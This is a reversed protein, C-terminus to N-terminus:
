EDSDSALNSRVIHRYKEPSDWWTPTTIIAKELWFKDYEKKETLRKYFRGWKYMARNLRISRSGSFVFKLYDKALRTWEEGSIIYFYLFIFGVTALIVQLTEDLIGALGEDESGGSGGVGDGSSGGSGGSGGGGGGGGAGREEYFEKKEIQQRLVDEISGEKKLNGMAKELAKWPSGEDGGGSENKGKGGLLCVPGASQHYKSVVRWQKNKLVAMCKHQIVKPKSSFRLSQSTNRFFNCPQCSTIQLTSMM